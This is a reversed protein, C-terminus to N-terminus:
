GGIVLYELDPFQDFARDLAILKFGGTRAFAALYADM